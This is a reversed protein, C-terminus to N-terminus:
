GVCYIHPATAGVLTITPLPLPLVIMPKLAFFNFAPYLKRTLKQRQKVNREGAEEEEEEEPDAARSRERTHRVFM